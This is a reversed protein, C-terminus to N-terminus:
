EPMRAKLPSAPDSHWSQVRGAQFYVQSSGYAFVNDAAKTPRGQVRIVDGKSSGVTFYPVGPDDAPYVVLSAGESAPRTRPRAATTASSSPANTSVGTRAGAAPTTTSAPRSTSPLLDSLSHGGFSDGFLSTAKDWLTPNESRFYLIGGGIVLLVLAPGIWRTSFHRRARFWSHYDVPIPGPSPSSHPTATRHSDESRPPPEPRHRPGDAPTTTLLQYAANIEKLKEEAALRMREDGQFRDPHWVKALVRYADKIEAPTADRTLGFVVLATCRECISQESNTSRGCACVSM